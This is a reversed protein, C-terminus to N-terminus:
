EKFSEIRRAAMNDCVEVGEKTEMDEATKEETQVGKFTSTEM